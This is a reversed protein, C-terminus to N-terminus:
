KTRVKYNRENMKVKHVVKLMEKDAKNGEYKEHCSRCVAMLNEIVDKTKSGGMGRPEIHHIDNATKGCIECPIWDTTDYGFYNLYIKVYRKMYAEM